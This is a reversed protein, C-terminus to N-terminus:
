HCLKHKNADRHGALGLLNDIQSIYTKIGFDGYDSKDGLMCDPKALFMLNNQHNTVRVSFLM